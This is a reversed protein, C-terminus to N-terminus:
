QGSLYTKKYIQLTKKLDILEKLKGKHLMVDLENYADTQEEMAAINTQMIDIAKDFKDCLYEAFEDVRCAAHYEYLNRIEVDEVYVENGCIDCINYWENFLVDRGLFECKHKAVRECTTYSTRTLCHPCFATEDGYSHPYQVEIERYKM